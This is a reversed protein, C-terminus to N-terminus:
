SRARHLDSRLGAEHAVSAGLYNGLANGTGLRLVGLGPLPRRLRRAEIELDGLCRVFTGDGGGLLALDYGRELILRAIRSSEELSTSVYVDSAPHLSCVRRIQQDTVGRANRNLVIAVRRPPAADLLPVPATNM